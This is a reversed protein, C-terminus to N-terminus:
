NYVATRVYMCCYYTGVRIVSTINARGESLTMAINKQSIIARVHLPVQKHHSRLLSRQQFTCSEAFPHTAVADTHDKGNEDCNEPM